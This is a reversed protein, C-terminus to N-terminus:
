VDVPKVVPMAKFIFQFLYLGLLVCVACFASYCLNICKIRTIGGKGHLGRRILKMVQVVIYGMFGFRGV